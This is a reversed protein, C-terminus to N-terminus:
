MLEVQIIEHRLHKKKFVKLDDQDDIKMRQHPPDGIEGTWRPASNATSEVFIASKCTTCVLLQRNM